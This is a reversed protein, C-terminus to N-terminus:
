RADRRGRQLYSDLTVRPHPEARRPPEAPRATRFDISGISVNVEVLPDPLTIQPAAKEPSPIAPSDYAAATAKETHTERRFAPVVAKAAPTPEEALPQASARVAPPPTEGPVAASRMESLAVTHSQGPRSENQPHSHPLLNKPGATLPAPQSSSAHSQPRLAGQLPPRPSVEISQGASRRSAPAGVTLSEQADERTPPDPALLSPVVPQVASLPGRARAIMRDLLMSM